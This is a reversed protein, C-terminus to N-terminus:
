LDYAVGIIASGEDGSPRQRVLWYFQKASFHQLIERQFHLLWLENKTAIYHTDDVVCYDIGSLEECTFWRFWNVLVGPLELKQRSVRLVVTKSISDGPPNRM